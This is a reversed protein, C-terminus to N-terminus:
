SGYSREVDEFDLEPITLAEKLAALPSNGTAVGTIGNKHLWDTIARLDATSAEGAKVRAIFEETVLAHLEEFLDESARKAM